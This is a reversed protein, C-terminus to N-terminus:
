NKQNSVIDPKLVVPSRTTVRKYRLRLKKRVFRRITSYSVIGKKSFRTEVHSKVDDITFHLNAKSKCYEEISEKIEDIFGLRSQQNTKRIDIIKIASKKIREVTSYIKNRPQKIIRSIMAPKMKERFYLEIIRKDDESIWAWFNDSSKDNSHIQQDGEDQDICMVNDNKDDEMILLHIKDTRVFGLAASFNRETSAQKELWELDMYKSKILTSFYSEDENEEERDTM